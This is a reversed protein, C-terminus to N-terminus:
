LVFSNILKKASGSFKFGMETRLGISIIRTNQFSNYKDSNLLGRWEIYLYTPMKSTTNTLKTQLNLNLYQIDTADKGFISRFASSSESISNHWGYTYQVSLTFKDKFQIAGITRLNHQAVTVTTDAFNSILKYGFNIPALMFSFGDQNEYRYSLDVKIGAVGPLMLGPIYSSSDRMNIQGGAYPQIELAIKSKERLKWKEIWGYNVIPTLNSLGKNNGSFNFSLLANLAQFSSQDEEDAGEEDAYFALSNQNKVKLIAVNSTVHLTDVQSFVPMSLACITCLLLVRKM